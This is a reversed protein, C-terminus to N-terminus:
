RWVYYPMFQKLVFCSQGTLILLKHIWTSHLNFLLIFLFLSFIPSVKIQEHFHIVHRQKCIYFKGVLTWSDIVPKPHTAASRFCGIPSHWAQTQAQDVTTNKWKCWDSCHSACLFMLLLVTPYISLKGGSRVDASGRSVHTSLQLYSTIQHM